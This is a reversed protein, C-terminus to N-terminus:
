CFLLPWPRQCALEQGTRVGNCSIAQEHAHARRPPASCLQVWRSPATSPPGPFRLRRGSPSSCPWRGGCPGAM